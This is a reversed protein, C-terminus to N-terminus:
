LYEWDAIAYSGGSDPYLMYSCFVRMFEPWHQVYARNVYGNIEGESVVGGQISPTATSGGGRLWTPNDNVVYIVGEVRASPRLNVWGTVVYIGYVTRGDNVRMNGNVYTVNPTVGDPQYFNGSPYGSSPYFTGSQNHGQSNSLAWLAALDMSPISDANEVKRSDDTNQLSDCATTFFVVDTTYIAKDALGGGSEEVEVRIRRTMSGTTAIVNLYISGSVTTTDLIVNGGGISLAQAENLSGQALRQVGYYVAGEAAYEAQITQIQTTVSAGESRTLVFAGLGMMALTVLFMLIMSSFFGEENKLNSLKM